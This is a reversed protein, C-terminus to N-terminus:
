REEGRVSKEHLYSYTVLSFSVYPDIELSRFHVWSVSVSSFGFCSRPPPRLNLFPHTELDRRYRTNSTGKLLASRASNQWARPEEHSARESVWM